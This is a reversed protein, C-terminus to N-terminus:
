EPIKLKRSEALARGPLSYINLSLIQCSIYSECDLCQSGISQLGPSFCAGRSISHELCSYQLWNGHGAEPSRGLGPVSSTNRRDGANVPLKKVGPVVKSAWIFHCIIDYLSFGPKEM